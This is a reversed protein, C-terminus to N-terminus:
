LMAQAYCLRLSGPYKHWQDLSNYVIRSPFCFACGTAGVWRRARAVAHWEVRRKKIIVEGLTDSRYSCSEELGEELVLEFVVMLSEFIVALGGYIDGNGMREREGLACFNNWTLYLIKFM